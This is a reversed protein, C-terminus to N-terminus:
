RSTSIVREERGEAQALRVGSRLMSAAARDIVIVADPHRQLASAPCDIDPRGEITRAIAEAKNEGQAVLLLRRSELITGIGQTVSRFPVEEIGSFFRSNDIRTGPTLETVRTRSDIPSGPENFGIHGNTGLGLLQIDIGGAARIASEYARCAEDIDAALGDPVHVLEPDLGLQETVTRRIVEHYSEPHAEDLGIYEDLAFATVGDVDLEGSRVLRSLEAYTGLPSSGTSVGIVARRGGRGHVARIEEAIIGAATRAVEAPTESIFIEM